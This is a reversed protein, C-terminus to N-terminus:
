DFVCLYAAAKPVSITVKKGAEIICPDGGARYLEGNIGAAGYTIQIIERRSILGFDYEGPLLLGTAMTVKTNGEELLGISQVDGEFLVNHKIKEM